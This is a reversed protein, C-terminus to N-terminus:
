ASLQTRVQMTVYEEESAGQLGRRSLSRAGNRSSSTTALRGPLLRRRLLGPRRLAPRSERQAVVELLLQAAALERRHM